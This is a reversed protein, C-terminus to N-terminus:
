TIGGITMAIIQLCGTYGFDVTGKFGLFRFALPLLRLLNGGGGGGLGGYGGGSSGRRDEINSSQRRGKWRM